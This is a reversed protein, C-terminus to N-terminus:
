GHLLVEQVEMKEYAKKLHKKARHIRTKVVSTKLRLIKGIDDYTKDHFYFLILPSRYKQDMDQLCEHIIVHEEKEFYYGYSHQMKQIETAKHLVKKDKQQKRFHDRATNLTIRYIWTSLRGSNYQHLKRYVKIFTEQVIDPIYEPSVGFQFAFREVIPKYKEILQEFANEDNEKVLQILQGEEM